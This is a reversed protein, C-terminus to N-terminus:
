ICGHYIKLLESLANEYYIEKKYESSGPSGLNSNSILDIISETLSSPEKREYTLGLNNREIIDGVDTNKPGIVLSNAMCARRLPGSIGKERRYPLVLVDSALFYKNVDDEPIYKLHPIIKEEDVLEEWQPMDETTIEKEKGAYVVYFDDRSITSIAESLIDPGKEYRLEGFFLFMTKETPLGLEERAKKSSIGQEIEPTPAPISHINRDSVGLTHILRQQINKDHVVIKCLKEELLKRRCINNIEMFRNEAFKRFYLAPLPYSDPNYNHDFPHDRHLTAILPPLDDNQMQAIWFPVESLDLFLHHLIDVESEISFAEQIQRYRNIQVQLQQIYPLNSQTYSDVTLINFNNDSPLESLHNNDDGTIFTVQHGRDLLFQSHYSVYPTHHGASEFDILGVKM